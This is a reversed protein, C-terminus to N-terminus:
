TGDSAQVPLLEPLFALLTKQLPPLMGPVYAAPDGRAVPWRAFLDLWGLLRRVDDATFRERADRYLM